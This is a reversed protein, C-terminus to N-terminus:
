TFSLLQVMVFSQVNSEQCKTTVKDDSYSRPYFKNNNCCGDVRCAEGPAWKVTLSQIMSDRSSYTLVGMIFPPIFNNKMRFNWNPMRMYNGIIEEAFMTRLIYTIIVDFRPKSTIIEYINRLKNAPDRYRWKGRYYGDRWGLGYKGHDYTVPIKPRKYEKTSSTQPIVYVGDHTEQIVDDDIVVNGTEDKGERLHFALYRAM